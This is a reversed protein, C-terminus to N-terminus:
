KTIKELKLVISSNPTEDFFNHVDERLGEYYSVVKIDDKVNFISFAFSYKGDLNLHSELVSEPTLTIVEGSFKDHLGFEGTNFVYSYQTNDMDFTMNFELADGVKKISNIKTNVLEWILYEEGIGYKRYPYYSYGQTYIKNAQTTRPIIAEESNFNIEEIIEYVREDEMIEIEIRQPIKNEFISEKYYMSLVVPIDLSYDVYPNEWKVEKNFCIEIDRKSPDIEPLVIEMCTNVGDEKYSRLFMDCEKVGENGELCHESLRDYVSLRKNRLNLIYILLTSLLLLGLILLLIKVTKGKNIVLKM